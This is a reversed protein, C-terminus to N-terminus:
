AAGVACGGGPGSPPVGVGVVHVEALELAHFPAVRINRAEACSMNRRRAIEVRDNGSELLGVPDQELISNLQQGISAREGSEPPPRHPEDQAVRPNIMHQDVPGEMRLIQAVLLSEPVAEVFQNAM